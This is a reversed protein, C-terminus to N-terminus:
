CIRLSIKHDSFAVINVISLVMSRHIFVSSVCFDFWAAKQQDAHCIRTFLKLLLSNQVPIKKVGICFELNDLNRYFHRSKVWLIERSIHSFIQCGKTHYM